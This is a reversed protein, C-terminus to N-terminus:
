GLVEETTLTTTIRQVLRFTGTTYTKRHRDLRAAMAAGTRAADAENNVREHEVVRWIGDIMQEISVTSHTETTVDNM